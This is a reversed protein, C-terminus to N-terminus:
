SLKAVRTEDASHPAAALPPPRVRVLAAVPRHAAAATDATHLASITSLYFEHADQQAYTALRSSQTEAHRWWAQLFAAPSFPSTRGGFGEDFLARMECGVCVAHAASHTVTCTLPTHGDGLFYEQVTGAGDMATVRTHTLRQAM